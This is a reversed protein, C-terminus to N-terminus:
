HGCWGDNDCDWDGGCCEHWEEADKQMHELSDFFWGIMAEMIEDNTLKKPAYIRDLEIKLKDFSELIEDSIEIKAM